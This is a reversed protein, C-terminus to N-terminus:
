ATLGQRTVARGLDVATLGFRPATATVNLGMLRRMLCRTGGTLRAEEAEASRTEALNLMPM